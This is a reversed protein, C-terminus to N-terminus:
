AAKAIPVRTRADTALSKGEFLDAEKFEVRPATALLPLAEWQQAALWALASDRGVLVPRREDTPGQETVIVAGGNRDTDYFGLMWGTPGVHWTESPANEVYADVPVAFRQRILQAWTEVTTLKDDRANWILQRSGNSKPFSMGYRSQLWTPLGGRRTLVVAEQGARIIRGIQPAALTEQAAAIGGNTFRYAWCM